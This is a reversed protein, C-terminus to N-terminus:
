PAQGSSTAPATSSPVQRALMEMAQQRYPAFRLALLPNDGVAAQIHELAEQPDGLALHCRALVEHVELIPGYREALVAGQRAAELPRDMVLLIYALNKNGQFSDPHRLVTEQHLTLDDRFAATYSWGAPLLAVAGAAAALAASLGGRAVAAGVGAALFVTPLYLWREAFLWHAVPIVHLPLSLTIGLGALVAGELARRRWLLVVGALLGAALLMGGLVDPALRDAPSLSPVSWVPCLRSPRVLLEATLWLLRFPTFVREAPGAFSMPSAWANLAEPALTYVWGFVRCRLTFFAACALACGVHLPGAVGSFWARLGPRQGAPIRRYHWADIVALAPWLLVANEKSMVAAAFLLTHIVQRWTGPRGARPARLRCTLLWAGFCGALLESRGYGTVVAETHIPHAAFLLGAAWAAETRGALRWAALAVGAAALAHLALNVAHFRRAQPSTDGFLTVNLRYSWTTLPRYLKDSGIARPWTPETWARHWPGDTVAPHHVIFAWDDYVFANDLAGAFAIWGTLAAALM